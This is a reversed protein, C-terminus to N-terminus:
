VFEGLAVLRPWGPQLHEAFGPRLRFFLIKREDANAKVLFACSGWRDLDHQSIMTRM